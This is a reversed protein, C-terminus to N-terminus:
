NIESEIFLSLVSWVIDVSYRSKCVVNLVGRVAVSYYRIGARQLTGQIRLGNAKLISVISLEIRVIVCSMSSDFVTVMADVLM